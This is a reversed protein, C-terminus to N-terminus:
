LAGPARRRHYDVTHVSRTLTSQETSTPDDTLLHGDVALDVDKVGDFSEFELSVVEDVGQYSRHINNASKTPILWRLKLVSEYIINM